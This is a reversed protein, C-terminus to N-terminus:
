IYIYIQLYILIYINSVNIYITKVDIYIVYMEDWKTMRFTSIRLIRRINTIRTDDSKNM